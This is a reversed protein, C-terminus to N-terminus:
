ELGCVDVSTMVGGMLASTKAVQRRKLFADHGEMTNLQTSMMPNGHLNLDILPTEAFLSAPPPPANDNSPHSVRNNRLSLAELKKLSGAAQPTSVIVSDDLNLETLQKLKAIDAPTSALQNHSLDLKELKTLQASLLVDSISPAKVKDLLRPSRRPSQGVAAASSALPSQTISPVLRDLENSDPVRVAPPPSPSPTIRKRMKQNTEQEGEETTSGDPM